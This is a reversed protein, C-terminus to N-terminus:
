DKRSECLSQCGEAMQLIIIKEEKLNQKNEELYNLKRNKNKIKECFELYEKENYDTGDM